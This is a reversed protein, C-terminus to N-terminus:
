HAATLLKWELAFEFGKMRTVRRCNVAWKFPFVRNENRVYDRLELGLSTVIAKMSPLKNRKELSSRSEILAARLYLQLDPIVYHYERYSILGAELVSPTKTDELVAERYRPDNFIKM